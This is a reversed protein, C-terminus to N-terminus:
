YHFAILFSCGCVKIKSPLIIFISFNEAKLYQATNSNRSAAIKYGKLTDIELPMPFTSKLGWFYLREKTLSGIWQFLDNREKTRAISFIMVNKETKAINYARAWPMVVIQPKKNAQKFITQVVETSFGSLSGDTNITQYPNLYETVVKIKQSNSHAAM